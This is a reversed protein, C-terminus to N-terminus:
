YRQVSTKVPQKRCDSPLIRNQKLVKVGESLVVLRDFDSHLPVLKRHRSRCMPRHTPAAEGHHPCTESWCAWWRQGAATPRGWEGRWGRHRSSCIKITHVGGVADIHWPPSTSCGGPSADM